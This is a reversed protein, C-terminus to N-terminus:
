TPVPKVASYSWPWDEAKEVLKAKVPNMLIYQEIRYFEGEDRVLHDYYEEQWFPNGTRGLVKNAERGSYQKLYQMIKWLYATNNEYTTAMFHIHNSMICYAHLKFVNGDRYHLAEAVIKAVETEALHYPGNPNNDLADDYLSFYRKHAKYTEEKDNNAAKLLAAKQDKLRQIVHMPMSGHLRTTVFFTAAMPQWHPLNRYYFLTEMTSCTCRFTIENFLVRHLPVSYCETTRKYM